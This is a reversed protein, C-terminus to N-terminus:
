KKVTFAYSGEVRHSDNAVAHWALQYKGDALTGKLPVVLQKKNKSDQHPAGILILRGNGDTLKAGSFAPIISESFTFRLEKMSPTVVANASPTASKLAPHAYAAAGFAMSASVALAAIRRLSM